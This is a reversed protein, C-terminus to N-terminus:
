TLPVETFITAYKTSITLDTQIEADNQDPILGGAINIMKMVGFIAEQQKKRERETSSLIEEVEKIQGIM